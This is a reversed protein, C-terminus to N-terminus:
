GSAKVVQFTTDESPDIMEKTETAMKRQIMQSAMILARCRFPGNLFLGESSHPFEDGTLSCV